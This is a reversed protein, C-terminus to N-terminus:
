SKYVILENLTSDKKFSVEDVINFMCWKGNEIQYCIYDNDYADFVPILGYDIFNVQLDEIADLISSNGLKILHSYNANDNLIKEFEKSVDAVKYKKKIENINYM